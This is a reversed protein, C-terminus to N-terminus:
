GVTENGASDNNKATPTPLFSDNIADIKLCQDPTLLQVKVFQWGVANAIVNASVSLKQIILAFGFALLTKLKHIPLSLIVLQGNASPRCNLGRYNAEHDLTSM